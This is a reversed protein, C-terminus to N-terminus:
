RVAPVKRSSPGTTVELLFLTFQSFGSAPFLRYLNLPPTDLTDGTKRPTPEVFRTSLPVSRSSVTPGTNPTSQTQASLQELVTNTPRSRRSAGHRVATRRRSTRGPNAPHHGTSGLTRSPRGVFSTQSSLLGAFFTLYGREGSRPNEQSNGVSQRAHSSGASQRTCTRILGVNTSWEHSSRRLRHRGLSVM